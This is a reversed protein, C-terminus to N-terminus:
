KSLLRDLYRAIMDVELNVRDGVTLGGLTTENQTHPIINVGFRTGEVENVTLSVGDIVVSGKVALFRTQEPPAAFSLRVSDGEPRRAAVRAVGDVHGTVLHGGLEDGLRLAPELNVRTGIQWDKLTTKELTEGSVQTDFGDVTKAIVTLCVGSCAISAGIATPALSLKQTGIRVVWDGTKVLSTIVGIDQVIGTFMKNREM